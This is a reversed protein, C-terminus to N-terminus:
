GQLGNAIERAKELFMGADSSCGLFQMGREKWFQALSLNRMQCGPAVGHKLCTDRVAEFAAIMKPHQFEGPVGLSISLDVPGLMVADIGPISILEERREVALATEIQLVVMTNTNIHDIMEPITRTEYDIHQATLGFGRIGVPPFKTWSVAERVAEPSEFRPFVIGQAGNDLARAVLTYQAEGVRVLPCLGAMNASRCLDQVTEIDFNGHECDIFTWHFGAAALIRPIEVSRFQQFGTGLQVRGEKLAKKVSNVRM